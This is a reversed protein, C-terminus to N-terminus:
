YPYELRVHDAYIAEVSEGYLRWILDARADFLEAPTWGFQAAERGWLDLFRGGDDLALQWAADSVWAPKQHNLKAWDDLYCPPVSDAALAAREEIEATKNAAVIAVNSRNPRSQPLTATTAPARPKAAARVDRIIADIDFVPSASM